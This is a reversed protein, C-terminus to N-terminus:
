RKLCFSKRKMDSIVEKKTSYIYLIITRLTYIIEDRYIIFKM